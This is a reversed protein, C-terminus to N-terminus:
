KAFAFSLASPETIIVAECLVFSHFPQLSHLAFATGMDPAVPILSMSRRTAPMVVPSGAAPTPSIM